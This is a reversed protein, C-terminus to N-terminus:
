VHFVSYAAFGPAAGPRRAPEREIPESWAPSIARDPQMDLEISCSSEANAQSQMPKPSTIGLAYENRSM